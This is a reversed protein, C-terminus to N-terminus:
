IVARGRWRCAYYPMTPSVFEQDVQRLKPVILLAIEAASNWMPDSSANLAIENCGLEGRQDTRSISTPTTKSPM